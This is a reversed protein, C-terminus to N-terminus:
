RPAPALPSTIPPLEPNVPETPLEGFYWLLAFGLVMGLLYLACLELVRNYISAILGLLTRVKRYAYFMRRRHMVAQDSM